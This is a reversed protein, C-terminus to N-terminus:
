GEEVSFLDAILEATTSVTAFEGHINALSVAHIQDAPYTQGDPGVRDFTACADSALYTEFGLNGAMRTTTEVCHNTTLGCIVLSKIMRQRLRSELETGIFASNVRKTIVPEHWLPQAIEKIEVGPRGPQLPSDEDVSLHQIHFIPRDSERWAALLKAVNKEADPNNRPGWCPSDFGVQVDIVILATARPLSM